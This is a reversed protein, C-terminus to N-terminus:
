PLSFDLSLQPLHLHITLHALKSLRRNTITNVVPMGVVMMVPMGVVMMLTVVM